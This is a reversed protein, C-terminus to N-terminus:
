ASVDNKRKAHIRKRIRSLSEPKVGLFSAIQHQPVRNFLTPKTDLLKKYREEPSSSIFTTLEDKNKGLQEKAIQQIIADLRPVLKRLEDEFNQSSVTLLCDEVCELFHKSVKNKGESTYSVIKDGETYFATTKDEGDTIIYERVCGQLIMYCQTQTQGERVLMDGKQCEKFITAEGIVQIEDPTLLQIQQLM